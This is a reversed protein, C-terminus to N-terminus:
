FGWERKITKNHDVIRQGERRLKTGDRLSRKTVKTYTKFPNAGKSSTFLQETKSRIREFELDHKNLTKVFGKIKAQKIGSKTILGKNSKAFTAITSRQKKIAKNLSFSWKKGATKSALTKAAANKTALIKIGQYVNDETSDFISDFKSRAKFDAAEDLWAQSRKPTKQAPFKKIGKYKPSYGKIKPKGKRIVFKAIKTIM